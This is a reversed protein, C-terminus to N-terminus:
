QLIQQDGAAMISNVINALYDNFLNFYFDCDYFSSSYSGATGSLRCGGACFFAYKCAICGDNYPLATKKWQDLRQQDWVARGEEDFTGVVHESRGVCTWCSYINGDPCFVRMGTSAGCVSACRKVPTELQLAPVFEMNCNIEAHLFCNRFQPYKEEVNKKLKRIDEHGVSLDGIGLVPNAYILLNEHHMIEHRDIDDLLDLIFSMNRLDLNIRLDISVDSEKLVKEINAIVKEYSSTGDVPIRRADHIAKVGDMTIQLREIKGSGLLDMYHELDHGNTVAYYTLDAKKGLIYDIVERNEKALPEGGYLTIQQGPYLGDEIIRFVADVQKKSMIREPYGAAREFCYTCRYNCGLNPVLVIDGTYRKKEELLSFALEKAKAFEEEYTLDTLYGRQVFVEFADGMEAVVEESLSSDEAHSAILEYAEEDIVDLLGNLGNLLVHGGSDMRTSMINYRSFRM